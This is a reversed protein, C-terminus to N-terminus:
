QQHAFPTQKQVFSKSYKSQYKSLNLSLSPIFFFSWRQCNIYIPAFVIKKKLISVDRLTKTRM